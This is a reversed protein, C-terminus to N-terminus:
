TERSKISLLCKDTSNDVFSFGREAVVAYPNPKSVSNHARPKGLRFVLDLARNLVAFVDSRVAPLIQSGQPVAAPPLWGSGALLVLEEGERRGALVALVAALRHSNKAFSDPECGDTTASHESLQVAM